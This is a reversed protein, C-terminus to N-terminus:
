DYLDAFTPVRGVDKFSARLHLMDSALPSVVVGFSPSLRFFPAMGDGHRVEDAIYTSM